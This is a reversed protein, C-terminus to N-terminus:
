EFNEMWKHHSECDGARTVKTVGLHGLQKISIVRLLQKIVKPFNTMSAESSHVISPVHLGSLDTKDHSNIQINYSANYALYKM